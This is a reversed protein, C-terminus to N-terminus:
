IFYKAREKNYKEDNNGGEVLSNYVNQSYIELCWTVLVSKM